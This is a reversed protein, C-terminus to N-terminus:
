GDDRGGSALGAPRHRFYREVIQAADAAHIIATCVLQAADIADDYDDALLSVRARELLSLAKEVQKRESERLEAGVDTGEPAPTITYPVGERHGWKGM